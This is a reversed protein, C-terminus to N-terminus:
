SLFIKEFKYKSSNAALNSQSGEQRRNTGQIFFEQNRIPGNKWRGSNCPNVHNETVWVPHRQSMEYMSCFFNKAHSGTKETSKEAGGSNESPTNSFHKLVPYARVEL